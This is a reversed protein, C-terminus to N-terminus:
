RPEELKQHKRVGNFGMSKALEVDKRLALDSPTTLGSEPWYGQDLVLRLPYPRGNLIFRDGQLSLSRLATYSWAKDILEGRKGWLELEATILTPSRPSWLLENRYDDVGPDSLGIRRIVEGAIVEYTDRALLLNGIYLKVGLRLNDRFIGDLRTEFAIEWLELNPTWRPHGIATAPLKELWVTQWIGSTRPYWIAHPELLWDQKGRPKELNQPDDDAKVVIEVSGSPALLDTIDARFPTYGGTHRIAISRNIWVTTKYDVAGFHLILREGPELDPAEFYRRYWVTQFFGTNGVGSLPTEPAFPVLISSDWRVSDPTTWKGEADL